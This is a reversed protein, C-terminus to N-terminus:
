EKRNAASYGSEYGMFIGTFFSVYYKLIETVFYPYIAERQTLFYSWILAAVMSYIGLLGGLLLLIRIWIKGRSTIENRQSAIKQELNHISSTEDFYITVDRDGVKVTKKRREGASVTNPQINTSTIIKSSLRPSLYLISVFALSVGILSLLITTM